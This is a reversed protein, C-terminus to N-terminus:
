NEFNNLSKDRDRGVTALIWTYRLLQKSSKVANGSVSYYEVAKPFGIYVVEESERAM